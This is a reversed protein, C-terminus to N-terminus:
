KGQKNVLGALMTQFNERVLAADFLKSALAIGNGAWKKRFDEHEIIFHIASKIENMEPSTLCYACDNEACFKSIATEAPAFVLIPTGSMLYESAKTPISFQAYSLGTQNFDLPLLLLDYGALLAPVDEHKVPLSLRVNNLNRILKSDPSDLDPTYIDLCIGPRESTWSSVAKSFFYLSEKNAMGIRGIYLIRLVNDEAFGKKDLGSFKKTDIPNHFPKFEKRYRKKYESSMADSISLFLDMRDLLSRFELDIKKRWYNRLLGRRSITSPWDDMNHIASPVGLYDSLDRAFLLTERTAVQIYLVEPNYESLWRKFDESLEIKSVYHYLGFWELAPYFFKNVVIFRLGRKNLGSPMESKQDISKLGSEFKKQILSFPFRWKHEKGGLQYYIDCVDTTVSVLGHGLYTVAIRDRPWGKFLNTLTIGGGSFNNFPQGFILVRPYILDMTLNLEPYNKVAKSDM